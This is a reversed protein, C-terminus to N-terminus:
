LELTISRCVQEAKACVSARLRGHVRDHRGTLRATPAEAFNSSDSTRPGDFRVVAGDPLELAPAVRANIDVGTAALLTLRTDAGSRTVM